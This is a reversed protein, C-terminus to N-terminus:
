RGFKKCNKMLQWYTVTIAWIEGYQKSKKIQYRIKFNELWNTSFKPM